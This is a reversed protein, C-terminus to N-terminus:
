VPRKSGTVKVGVSGALSAAREPNEKYIEGQKTLSWGEKSWPNAPGGAGGAGSGGAGGGQSSPWWHQRSKQMETLWTEPDALPLTGVNDKTIVKGDETVEFVREALMLVDDYASEVVKSKSAAKRVHDHITRVRDKEEFDGIRTEAEGLKAKADDLERQVPALKTKVRKEAIEEIKEEDLKGAAAAELEDVRDLKELIESPNLRLSRLKDYDQLKEKTAKHENREKSLATNISEFDAPTKMGEVQLVYKGGSEKYLSRINEDVDELREIEYKLM